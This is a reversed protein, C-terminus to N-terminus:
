PAPAGGARDRAAFLGDRLRAPLLSALLYIYNKGLMPLYAMSRRAARRASRSDREALCGYALDHWLRGLRRRTERPSLVGPPLGQGLHRELVRLSREAMGRRDRSASGPRRRVVAGPRSDFLLRHRRALRLWLDYDEMVQMEGSFRDDADLCERVLVVTPTLIPNELLLDRLTLPRSPMRPDFRPLSALETPPEASGDPTADNLLYADCAVLLAAPDRALADRSRELHDSLWLDDDDLFAVYRGRAQELGVNRAAAPGAVNTEFRRVRPDTELETPLAPQSAIRDHILLIELDDAAALASALAARLHASDGRTPLIVSFEPTL